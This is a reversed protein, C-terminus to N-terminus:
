FVDGEGIYFASMNHFVFSLTSVITGITKELLLQCHTISDTNHPNDVILDVM